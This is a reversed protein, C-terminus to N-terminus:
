RGLRGGGGGGCVCQRKSQKWFVRQTMVLPPPVPGVHLSGTITRPLCSRAPLSCWTGPICCNVRDYKIMLERLLLDEIHNSLIHVKNMDLYTQTTNGNFYEEPNERAKPYRAKKAYCSILPVTLLLFIM